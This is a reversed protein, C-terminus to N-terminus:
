VRGQLVVARPIGGFDARTELTSFGANEALQSLAAGQHIGIEFIALGESTLREPLRSCLFRYAEMGDEGGDLAAVPEHERVEPMLEALDATPIYPPNSLVIDFQHAALASDWRGAMFFARDSLKCRNANEVALGAAAPNLDIGVGWANRYESLAALLLCGTGTGLDLISLPKERDPMHDLLCSIVTESDARPILTAPSVGIDLTWFGQVGTIFAMPERGVRREVYSLFARAPVVDQPSRMILRELSEHLAYAMLLRSERRPSDIGAAALQRAGEALLEGFPQFESQKEARSVVHGKNPITSLCHATKGTKRSEGRQEKRHQGRRGERCPSSLEGHSVALCLGFNRFQGSHIHVSFQRRRELKIVPMLLFGNFDGCWKATNVMAISQAAFDGDACRFATHFRMLDATISCQVVGVMVM